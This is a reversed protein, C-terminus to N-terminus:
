TEGEKEVFRFQSLWESTHQAMEIKEEFDEAHKDPRKFLDDASPRKERRARERMIAIVSQYELEDYDRDIQSQMLDHM